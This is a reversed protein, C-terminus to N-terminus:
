PCAQTQLLPGRQNSPGKAFNQLESVQSDVKQVLYRSLFIETTVGIVACVVTILAVISVILKSRITM